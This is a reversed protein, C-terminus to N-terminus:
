VKQDYKWGLIEECLFMPVEYLRQEYLTKSVGRKSIVHDGFIDRFIIEETLGARMAAVRFATILVESGICIERDVGGEVFAELERRTFNIVKNDPMTIGEDMDLHIIYKM